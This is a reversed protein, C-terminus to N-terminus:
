KRFSVNVLHITFVSTEICFPKIKSLYVNIGHKNVNVPREIEWRRTRTKIWEKKKKKKRQSKCNCKNCLTEAEESTRNLFQESLVIIYQCLVFSSIANQM